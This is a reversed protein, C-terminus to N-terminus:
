PQLQGEQPLLSLRREDKLRYYEEIIRRAVPAANGSTRGNPIVVVVAIESEEYPTVAVFWANNKTEDKPVTQATGTKGAVTINPDLDQFYPAATGGGDNEGKTPHPDNVVRWMGELTADLYEQKIDLHRLVKPETEKIVRGESDVVKKILHTELVKGGNAIAAVYRAVSLPSLDTYGQGIGAQITDSPRWRKYFALVDRRIEDAAQLARNEYGMSELLEAIKRTDELGAERSRDESLPFDVITEVQEMQEETLQPGFYGYENKKMIRTVLTKMNTRQSKIKIEEDPIINKDREPSLIEIGTGGDLGFLKAWKSIAEVGLRDAVEFFFYNCSHKLADIYNEWGHGSKRSCQPGNKSDYKTFKVADYIRTNLDIVGEELGAIGILMKFVSGPMYRGQFALAFQNGDKGPSNPDFSPYSVLSLIEGTNVDLIVAAGEEALPAINDENYPPIGKSMKEIEEKLINSVSRQLQSDITLIVEDGNQPPDEGLVRIVKGLSDKEAVLRGQREAKNGTLWEEAYAEIGTKGVKDDSIDYGQKRYEETEEKGISGLYGLIQSFDDGMPYYRGSGVLTQVGPIEPAFTEIQVVTDPSIGEAVLIPEYQTFRKMYINLRISIIALAIEDDIEADIEYREERLYDLMEEADLEDKVGIDKCWAKYRKDQVEEEEDRWTYYPLGTKPDYRIPLLNVLTDQDGNKYIIELMRLLIENVEEHDSPIQQRNMQLKYIQNNNTMAIGYRDTISGRTGKLKLEVRQKSLSAAYLEDGKEVTLYALQGALVALCIICIIGLQINREKLAKLM